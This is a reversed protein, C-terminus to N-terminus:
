NNEANTMEMSEADLLEAERKDHTVIIFLRSEAQQKVTEFIRMKLEDDLGKFPEDMLVAGADYALARAIAVRRRMGGSLEKPKKDACEGLEVAKLWKVAQAKKEDKSGTLVVEINKAATMEEFLRDEQFVASLKLGKSLIVKGSDQKILGLLINLMTTKGCGSPGSICVIVSDPFTKTFDSLVKKGDFSKSIKEARIM